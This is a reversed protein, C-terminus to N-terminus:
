GGGKGRGETRRQGKGSKCCDKWVMEINCDFLTMLLIYKKCFNFAYQYKMIRKDVFYSESITVYVSM